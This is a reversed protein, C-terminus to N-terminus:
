FQTRLSFRQVNGFGGFPTLSYDFSYGAFKVGCGTSFGNFSGIKSSRSVQQASGYGMRVALSPIIAYETGVSLESASYPRHKYDGALALGVPLRYGLGLAITLPLADRESLFKLGPGINQVALGITPMGPGRLGLEYISGLDVAFTHATADSISSSVYKVNGGLRLGSYLRAAYALNVATDSAGYDGTLKGYLDRGQIAGQSLRAAALALIGRGRKLPQGYGLFDYRTDSALEAHMAGAEKKALLSLGAPNWALANIDNALATYAGGMGIPRAGVGIKLFQASEGAIGELPALLLGFAAWHLIKM